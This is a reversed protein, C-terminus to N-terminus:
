ILLTIDTLHLVPLIATHHACVQIYFPLRALLSVCVVTFETHVNMRSPLIGQSADAHFHFDLSRSIRAFM